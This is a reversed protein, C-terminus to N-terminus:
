SRMASPTLGALVMFERSMHAQDAYGFASALTALSYEPTAIMQQHAAQFRVIRALQKPSLGVIEEINRRAERESLPYRRFLEHLPTRGGSHIVGNVLDQALSLRRTQALTQTSWRSLCVRQLVESLAFLTTARYAKAFPHSFTRGLETLRVTVDKLERVPLCLWSGACGPYFRLGLLSLQGGITVLEFHRRAGYVVLDLLEIGKKNERVFAILDISGDPLIRHQITSTTARQLWVAEILQNAQALKPLLSVAM